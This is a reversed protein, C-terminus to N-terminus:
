AFARWRARLEELECEENFCHHAGCILCPYGGPAVMRRKLALAAESRSNFIGVSHGGRALAEFCGDGRVRAAMRRLHEGVSAEPGAAPTLRRVIRGVYERGDFVSWSSRTRGSAVHEIM